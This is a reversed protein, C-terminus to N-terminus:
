RARLFESDLLSEVEPAPQPLGFLFGQVEDCQSQALMQLQDETEVGEAIVKMNLGHALNITAKVIAADDANAAIGRTFSQDIKLTNLPFKKLYSLV